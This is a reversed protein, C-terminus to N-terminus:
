CVKVRILDTTFIQYPVAAQKVVEQGQARLYFIVQISIVHQSHSTSLTLNTEGVKNLFDAQHTLHFALRNPVLLKTQKM